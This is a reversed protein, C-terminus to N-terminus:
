KKEFDDNLHPATLFMDLVNMEYKNNNTSIFYYVKQHSNNVRVVFFDFRDCVNSLHFSYSISFYAVCCVSISCVIQFFLNSDLSTSSSFSIFLSFHRCFHRSSCTCSKSLSQLLSFSYIAHLLYYYITHEIIETYKISRRIECENQDSKSRKSLKTSM